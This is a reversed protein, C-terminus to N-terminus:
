LISYDWGKLFLISCGWGNLFLITHDWRKLYPLQLRVGEPSLARAEAALVPQETSVHPSPARPAERSLLTALEKSHKHFSLHEFTLFGAKM